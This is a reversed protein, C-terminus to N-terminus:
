DRPSFFSLMTGLETAADSVLMCVREAAIDSWEVAIGDETDRVVFAPFRECDIELEVRAMAICPLEMQIRAGSVSVETIFGVSWELTPKEVVVPICTHVRRGWRHEM